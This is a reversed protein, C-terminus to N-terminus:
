STCESANIICVSVMRLGSLQLFYAPMLFLILNFDPKVVFGM